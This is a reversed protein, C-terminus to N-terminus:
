FPAAPCLTEPGLTEVPDLTEEILFNGRGVIGVIGGAWRENM